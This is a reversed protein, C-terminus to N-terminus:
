SDGDSDSLSLTVGLISALEARTITGLSRTRRYADDIDDDEARDLDAPSRGWRAPRAASARVSASTPMAPPM